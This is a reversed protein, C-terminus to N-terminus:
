YMWRYRRQPDVEMSVSDPRDSCVITQGSGDIKHYLNGENRKHGREQALYVGHRSKDAADKTVRNGKGIYGEM